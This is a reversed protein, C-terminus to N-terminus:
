PRPELMFPKMPSLPYYALEFLTGRLGIKIALTLPSYFRSDTATSMQMM